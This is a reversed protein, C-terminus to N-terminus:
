NTPLKIKNKKIIQIKTDWNEKIGKTVNAAAATTKTNQCTASIM